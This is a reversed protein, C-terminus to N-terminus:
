YKETAVFLYRRIKNIKWQFSSVVPIMEVEFEGMFSQSKKKNIYNVNVFFIKRGRLPYIIKIM